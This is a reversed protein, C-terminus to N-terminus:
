FFFFILSQQNQKGAFPVFIVCTPISWCGLGTHNGPQSIFDFADSIETEMESDFEGSSRRVINELFTNQPAVLGRKGGHMISTEPWFSPAARHDHQYQSVRRRQRGPPLRTWRLWSRWSPARHIRVSAEFIFAEKYDYPAPGSKSSTPHVFDITILIWRHKCQLWVLRCQGLVPSVTLEQYFLSKNKLEKELTNSTNNDWTEVKYM